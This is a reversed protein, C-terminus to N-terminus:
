RLRCPERLGVRRRYHNTIDAVEATTLTRDFLGYAQTIGGESLMETKAWQTGVMKNQKNGIRNTYISSKEWRPTNPRALDPFVLDGLVVGDFFLKLRGDRASYTVFAIRPRGDYLTMDHSVDTLLATSEFANVDHKYM